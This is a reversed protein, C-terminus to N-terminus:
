YGPICVPFMYPPPAYTLPNPFINSLMNFVNPFIYLKNPRIKRKQGPMIKRKRGPRIKQKWGLWIKQKRGPRIKKEFQHPFM